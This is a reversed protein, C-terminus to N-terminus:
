WIWTMGSVLPQAASGDGEPFGAESGHIRSQFVDPCAHVESARQLCRTDVEELAANRGASIGNNYPIVIARVGEPNVPVRSDDVIIIALRRYSRRISDLLRQLVAPREFTKIVVTLQEDVLPHHVQRRRSVVTDLTRQVAYRPPGAALVANDPQHEGM